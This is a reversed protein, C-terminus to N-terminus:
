FSLLSKEVKECNKQLRTEMEYGHVSQTIEDDTHQSISGQKIFSYRKGLFIGVVLAVVIFLCVAFYLYSFTNPSTTLITLLKLCTRISRTPSQGRMSILNATSSNLVFPEGSCDWDEFMEACTGGNLEVSKAGMEWQYPINVCKDIKLKIWNGLAYIQCLVKSPLIFILIKQKFKRNGANNVQDFATIEEIKTTNPVGDCKHRCHSISKVSPFKWKLLDNHFYTDQRLEISTM